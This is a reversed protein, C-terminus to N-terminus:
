CRDLHTNQFQPLSTELACATATLADPIATVHMVTKSDLAPMTHTGHDRNILLQNM